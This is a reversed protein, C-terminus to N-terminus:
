PLVVELLRDLLSKMRPRYDERLEYTPPPPLSSDMKGSYFADLFEITKLYMAYATWDPSWEDGKMVCLSGDEHIHINVKPLKPELVYVNLQKYPFEEPYVLRVDSHYNGLIYLPGCWLLNGFEDQCLRFNVGNREMLGNEVALREKDTLYWQLTM